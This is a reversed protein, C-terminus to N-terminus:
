LPRTYIMTTDVRLRERVQDLLCAARINSGYDCYFPPQMWVTNGGAGFLDQPIDPLLQAHLSSLSPTLVIGSRLLRAGLDTWVHPDATPNMRLHRHPESRDSGGEKQRSRREGDLRLLRSLYVSNAEEACALRQLQPDVLEPL